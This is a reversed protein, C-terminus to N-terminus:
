QADEIIPSTLPRDDLMACGDKWQLRRAAFWGVARPYIIHELQQVRASLSKETDGPRVALRGQIIAPGADLEETVFHVTCGHQHDGAALVRRHTHLGRHAPLLSPHINLLRGQWRQVFGADLIRMFGALAVLETRHRELIETLRRGLTARDTGGAAEVVDTALGLRHAEVLGMAAPQDSIVVALRGAIRGESAARALALMNSGRGSILVAFPLSREM